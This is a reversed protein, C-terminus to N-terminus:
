KCEKKDDVKYNELDFTRHVLSIIMNTKATLDSAMTATDILLREYEIAERRNVFSRKFQANTDLVKDITELKERIAISLVKADSILLEYPKDFTAKDYLSM